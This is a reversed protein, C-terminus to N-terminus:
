HTATKMENRIVYRTNKKIPQKKLLIRLKIKHM